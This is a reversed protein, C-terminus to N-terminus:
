YMLAGMNVDLCTVLNDLLSVRLGTMGHGQLLGCVIFFGAVFGVGFLGYVYAKVCDCARRPTAWKRRPSPVLFEM